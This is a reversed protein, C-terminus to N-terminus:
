VNLNSVMLQIPADLNKVMKKRSLNKVMKLNKLQCVNVCKKASKTKKCKYKISKNNNNNKNSSCRSRFNEYRSRVEQYSITNKKGLMTNIHNHLDFIYRSFTERNKM